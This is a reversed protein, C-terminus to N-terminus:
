KPQLFIWFVLGISLARGETVSTWLGQFILGRRIQGFALREVFSRKDAVIAQRGDSLSARTARLGTLGFRRPSIQSGQDYQSRRRAM